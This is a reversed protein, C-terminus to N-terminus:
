AQPDGNGEIARKLEVGIRETSGVETARERGRAGLAARREPSSILEKLAAALGDAHDRAVGILHTGPEFLERLGSGDGTVVARGAALGQYVKHPIVRGAKATAGFAGLVVHAEGLVRPAEHYPCPGRFTTRRLGCRAALRRARELEIGEGVLEITFDPLSSAERELRAAAEIVTPVGHLPLFGGVYVVRVPGPDPPDGIRFFVDEAGVPVRWLRHKPVGLAEYLRGHAWTDCLVRDALSLAWRDIWENWRAQRSGESHIAWDRVLTDHRSVLPDFVLPRRGKLWSALPMDKHRFAPVLLVDAARAVRAFAFLLAPYRLAARREAARAEALEIGVRDLGQRFV